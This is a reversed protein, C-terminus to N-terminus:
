PMSVSVKFFNYKNENGETVEMWTDDALSAKGWTTYTRTGKKGKGDNLDPDWKVVPKGDEFEITSTFTSESDTPDTGAVYDDWVTLAVGDGSFKGTTQLIATSQGSGYQDEFTKYKAVWSQLQTNDIFVLSNFDVWWSGRLANNLLNRDGGNVIIYKLNCCHEFPWGGYQVVTSPISVSVLRRCEYFANGINTVGEPIDLSVISCSNFAGGEISKVTSPIRLTSIARGSFMGSPIETRGEHMVVNTPNSWSFTGGVSTVCTPITVSEIGTSKYFADSGIFTVTEPLVVTKLSGYCYSFAFSEISVVGSHMVVSGLSRCNYCVSNGINTVSGPVELSTLGSGSFCSPGLNKVTSPIRIQSLASCGEFSSQGIDTIGDPLSV